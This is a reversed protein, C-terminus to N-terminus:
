KQIRAHDRVRELKDEEREVQVPFLQRKRLPAGLNSGPVRPLPTLFLKFKKEIFAQGSKPMWRAENSASILKFFHIKNVRQQM